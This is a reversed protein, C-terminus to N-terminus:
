KVYGNEELIDGEIAEEETNATLIDVDIGKSIKECYMLQNEIEDGYDFFPTGCIEGYAKVTHEHGDDCVIGVFENETIAKILEKKDFM